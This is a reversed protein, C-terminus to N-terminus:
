PNHLLSPVSAPVVQTQVVPDLKEAAVMKRPIRKKEGSREVPARQLLVPVVSPVCKTFRMLGDPGAYMESRVLTRPVSKKKALSPVLPNSSQFLSPVAAPVTITFSMLGPGPEDKAGRESVDKPGVSSKGAM